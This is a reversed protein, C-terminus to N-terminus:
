VLIVASVMLSVSIKKETNESLRKHSKVIYPLTTMLCICMFSVLSSRCLVAPSSYCLIVSSEM